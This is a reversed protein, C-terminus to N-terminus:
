RSLAVFLLVAGRCGPLVRVKFRDVAGHGAFANEAEFGYESEGAGLRFGKRPLERL